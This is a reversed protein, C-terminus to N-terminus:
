KTLMACFRTTLERAFKDAMKNVRTSNTKSNKTLLARLANNLERAFYGFYNTMVIKNASRSARQLSVLSSAMIIQRAIKNVRIIQRVIKNACLAFRTTLSVLLAAM